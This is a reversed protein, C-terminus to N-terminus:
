KQYRNQPLLFSPYLLRSQASYEKGVLQPKLPLDQHPASSIKHNINSSNKERLFSLSACEHLRIHPEYEKKNELLNENKPAQIIVKVKPNRKHYRSKNISFKM